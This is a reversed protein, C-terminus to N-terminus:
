AAIHGHQRRVTMASLSHRLGREAEFSARMDERGDESGIPMGLAVDDAGAIHQARLIFRHPGATNDSFAAERHRYATACRLRMVDESFAM